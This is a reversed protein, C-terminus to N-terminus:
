KHEIELSWEGDAKVEFWLIGTQDSEVEGEFEAYENFLHERGFGSSASRSYGGVIFNSEGDHTASVMIPEYVEVPGVVDQGEGTASVPSVRITEDPSRPQGLYLEWEGDAGVELHYDDSSIPEAAAGSVEGIDNVFQDPFGEGAVLDITFNSTGDRHEFQAITLGNGLSFEDTVTSGDGEFHNTGFRFLSSGTGVESEAISLLESESSRPPGETGGDGSGDATGDNNGASGDGTPLSPTDDESGTCGAVTTGIGVGAVGLLERRRM